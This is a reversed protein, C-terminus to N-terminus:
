KKFLETLEGVGMLGYEDSVNVRFIRDGVVYTARTINGSRTMSTRGMVADPSLESPIFIAMIEDLESQSYESHNVRMQASTWDRLQGITTLSDLSYIM